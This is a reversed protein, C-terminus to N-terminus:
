FMLFNILPCNGNGGRKYNIEELLLLRTVLDSSIYGLDKEKNREYYWTKHKREAHQFKTIYKNIDFLFLQLKIENFTRPM